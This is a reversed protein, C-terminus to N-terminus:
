SVESEANHRALEEACLQAVKKLAVLPDDDGVVQDHLWLKNNNRYDSWQAVCVWKGEGIRRDACPEDYESRSGEILWGLHPPLVKLVICWGQERLATMTRVVLSDLPVTQGAQTKDEKM